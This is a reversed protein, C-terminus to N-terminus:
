PAAPRLDSEPGCGEAQMLAAPCGETGARAPLSPTLGASRVTGGGVGDLRGPGGSAEARLQPLMVLYFRRPCGPAQTPGPPPRLRRTATGLGAPSVRPLQSVAANHQMVALSALWGDQWFPVDGGLCVGGFGNKGRGVSAREESVLQGPKPHSFNRVISPTGIGEGGGMQYCCRAGKGGVFVFPPEGGGPSFFFCAAPTAHPHRRSPRAAWRAPCARPDGRRYLGTSPLTAPAAPRARRRSRAGLLSGGLGRPTPAAPQPPPALSSAPRRRRSLQLAACGPGRRAADGTGNRACGPGTLAAGAGRGRPGLAGSFGGEPSGVGCWGRAPALSPSPPLSRRQGGPPPPRARTHAAAESRLEGGGWRRRAGSGWAGRTAGARARCAGRGWAAGPACPLPTRRGLARAGGGARRGRPLGLSNADERLVPGSPAVARTHASAGPPSAASPPVPPIRLRCPLLQVSEPPQAPARPAPPPPLQGPPPSPRPSPARARARVRASERVGQVRREAAERARTSGGKPRGAAGTRLGAAAWGAGARHPLRGGPADVCALRPKEPDRRRPGDPVPHARSAAAVRASPCHPSQGWLTRPGIERKIQPQTPEAAGPNPHRRRKPEGRKCSPPSRETPVRSTQPLSLLKHALTIPDEEALAQDGAKTACGVLPPGVRAEAARGRAPEGAVQLWTRKGTPSSETPDGRRRHTVGTAELVPMSVTGECPKWPGLRTQNEEQRKPWQKGIVM